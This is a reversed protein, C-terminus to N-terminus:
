QSHIAGVKTAFIRRNDASMQDSNGSYACALSITTQSAFSIVGTLSMQRQDDFDSNPNLGTKGDAFLQQSGDLLFCSAYGSGAQEGNDLTAEGTVLYSGAPLTLSELTAATLPGTLAISNDTASIYTDSPGVAGQVGQIGQVGPAGKLGQPGTEGAPLEGAKFDKSRLSGDKVKKSKVANKKIQKAGVSNKPLTTVAWSVGGLALFAALTAVVNAYTLRAKIRGM